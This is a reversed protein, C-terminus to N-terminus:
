KNTNQRLIDWPYPSTSPTSRREHKRTEVASRNQLYDSKMFSALKSAASKLGGEVRKVLSLGPRGTGTIDDIKAIVTGSGPAFVRASAKISGDKAIELIDLVFRYCVDNYSGAHLLTGSKNDLEEIFAWKLNDKGELWSWAAKQNKALYDDESLGCITYENTFYLSVDVHSANYLDYLDGSSLRQAVGSISWFFLAITMIASKTRSIRMAQKM